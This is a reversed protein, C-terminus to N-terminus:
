IVEHAQTSVVVADDFGAFSWFVGSPVDLEAVVADGFDDRGFVDVLGLAGADVM